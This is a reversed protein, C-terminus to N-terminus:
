MGMKPLHQLVRKAETGNLRYSGDKNKKLEVPTWCFNDQHAYQLNATYGAPCTMKQQELTGEPEDKTWVYRYKLKATTNNLYQFEVDENVGDYCTVEVLEFPRKKTGFQTFFLFDGKTPVYSDDVEMVPENEDTQAAVQKEHAEKTLYANMYKVHHSTVKKTGLKRLRYTVDSVKEVVEFPGINQYLLRTATGKARKGLMPRSILCLDGLSFSVSYHLAENALSKSEIMKKAETEIVHMCFQRHQNTYRIMGEASAYLKPEFPKGNAQTSGDGPAKPQYGLLSQFASVTTFARPRYNLCWSSVLAGTRWSKGYKNCCVKMISNVVRHRRETRSNGQANAATITVAKCGFQHYLVDTLENCFETGMDRVTVEVPCGFLLFFEWCATAVDLATKTKIPKVYNFETAWCLSHFLYEEGEENKPLPGVLDVGIHEMPMYFFDSVQKGAHKKIETKSRCCPDCDRIWQKIDKSMGKWYAKSRVVSYTIHYGPHGYDISDHLAAMVDPMLAKPLLVVNELHQESGLLNRYYVVGNDLFTFPAERLYKTGKRKLEDMDKGNTLYDRVASIDPELGQATKFQEVTPMSAHVANGLVSYTAGMATHEKKSSREEITLGRHEKGQDSKLCVEFQAYLAQLPAVPFSRAIYGLADSYPMSHLKAKAIEDFNHLDCEETLTWQRPGKSDQVWQSGKNGGYTYGSTITPMPFDPDYLRNHMGFAASSGDGRTVTGIRRSSFSDKQDKQMRTQSSHSSRLAPPVDAPDLMISQCGPFSKMETPVEFPATTNTAVVIYRTRSTYAGHRSMCMLFSTVNDFKCDEALGKELAVYDRMDNHAPDPPSMEAYFIKPNIKKILRLQDVFLGGNDHERPLKNIRQFRCRSTCPMTSALVDIPPLKFGADLKKELEQIPGYETAGTRDQFHGHMKVDSECGGVIKFPTSETAMVDCGIGYGWLMTNYREPNQTAIPPSHNIANISYEKWDAAEDHEVIKDMPARSPADADDILKGAVHKVTFNMCSFELAWRYLQATTHAVRQVWLMNKHDTELTFHSGRVYEDFKRCGYLSCFIEKRRVDWNKEHKGWKRSVCAVIRREGDVVQQLLCGMGAESADSRIIFPLDWRPLLLAPASTLAGKLDEFEAQCQDSWVFENEKQLLDTIASTRAGFNPVFKRYYGCMGLVRKIGTVDTPPPMKSIGEIKDPDVLLGDKSCIHGLFKVEQRGLFAKRPEAQINHERLKALVWAVVEAHCEDESHCILDDMYIEVINGLAMEGHHKGPGDYTCRFISDVMSQVVAPSIKLGMPLVNWMYAGMHQTVFTTHPRCDPHLLFQHFWSKFDITTYRTSGGLRSYIDECTTLPYCMPKIHENPKRYDITIRVPDLPDNKPVCLMPSCNPAHPNPSILNQEHMETIKTTVNTRWENSVRFAKSYWMAGPEIDFNVYM